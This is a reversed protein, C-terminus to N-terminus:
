LGRNEISDDDDHKREELEEMLAEQKDLFAERQLKKRTQVEMESYEGRGRLYWCLIVAFIFLCVATVGMVIAVIAIVPLAASSCDDGGHGQECFCENKGVDCIGHQLDCPFPCPQGRGPPSWVVLFFLGLPLFFDPAVCM